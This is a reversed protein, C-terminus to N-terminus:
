LFEAKKLHKKAGQKAIKPGNQDLLMCKAMRYCTTQGEFDISQHGLRCVKEAKFCQKQLHVSAGIFRLNNFFLSIYFEGIQLWDSTQNCIHSYKAHNDFDKAHWVGHKWRNLKRNRDTWNEIKMWEIKQKCGNQKRSEDATQHQKGEAVAIKKDKIIHSVPQTFSTVAM